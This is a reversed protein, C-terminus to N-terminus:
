RQSSRTRTAQERQWAYYGDFAKLKESNPLLRASPSQDFVMTKMEKEDFAPWAPLGPGNPEGARAFNVWCSSMLDSLAVDEPM